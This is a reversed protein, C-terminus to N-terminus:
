GGYKSLAEALQQRTRERSYIKATAIGAARMSDATNWEATRAFHLMINLGKYDGDEHVVFANDGHNMFDGGGGGTFGVVICGSAMAELPPLGLGEPFSHAIFVKARRLEEAFQKESCDPLIKVRERLDSHTYPFTDAAMMEMITKRGFKREQILIETTRQKTWTDYDIMDDCYFVREDIFPSVMYTERDEFQPLMMQNHKSSIWVDLGHYPLSRNIFVHGQVYMVKNHFGSRLLPEVDEWGVILDHQKDASANMESETLHPVSHEFWTPRKNDKYVICANHGLQRELEVLQYVVKIVGSPIPNFPLIHYINM